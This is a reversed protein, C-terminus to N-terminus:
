AYRGPGPSAQLLIQQKDRTLNVFLYAPADLSVQISASLNRQPLSVEVQVVPQELELPVIEALSIQRRTRVHSKDFVVRGDVTIIVHDDEFGEQLEIQLTTM